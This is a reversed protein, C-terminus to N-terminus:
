AEASRDKPFVEPVMGLYYLRSTVDIGLAVITVAFNDRLLSFQQM